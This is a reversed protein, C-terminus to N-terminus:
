IIETFFWDKLKNSFSKIFVINKINAPIINWIRCGSQEITKYGFRSEVTKLHLDTAQRTDHDHIQNNMVFYNRFIVPLDRNTFKFKHVLKAICFKHLTPIPLTKFNKYLSNIPTEIKKSQLIRLIKNNLKILKDLSSYFTNAYLEIGYILHPYILAFYIQKCTEIPILARLKYFIGVFKMLKKEVFKIHEQWSLSDDLFMGLYKCSRVQKIIKNNIM